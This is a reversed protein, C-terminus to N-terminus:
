WVPISATEWYNHWYTDRPRWYGKLKIVESWESKMTKDENKKLMVWVNIKKNWYTDIHCLDRVNKFSQTDSDGTYKVYKVEYKIESCSFITVIENCEMSADSGQHSLKCKICPELLWVDYVTSRNPGEEWGVPRITHNCRLILLMWNISWDCVCHWPM